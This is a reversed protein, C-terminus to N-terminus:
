SVLWYNRHKLHLSEAKERRRWHQYFRHFMFHSLSSFIMFWWCQTPSSFDNSTLVNNDCMTSFLAHNKRKLNVFVFLFVIIEFKNKHKRQAYNSNTGIRPSINMNYRVSWKIEKGHRKDQVSTNGENFWSVM